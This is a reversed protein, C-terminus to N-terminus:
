RSVKKSEVVTGQGRVDQEGKTKKLGVLRGSDFTFLFQRGVVKPLSVAIYRGKVQYKGEHSTTAVVRCDTSNVFELQKWDIKDDWTVQWVHARIKAIVETDFRSHLAAQQLRNEVTKRQLGKLKELIGEYHNAAHSVLCDKRYGKHSQSEEWWLDAVRKIDETRESDKLEESAATKLRGETGKALYSVGTEFDGKDLCFFEGVALFDSASASGSDVKRIQEVVEPYLSGLRKSDAAVMEVQMMPLRSGLKKAIMKLYISTKEAESYQHSDMLNEAEKIGLSLLESAGDRTLSRSKLMSRVLDRNNKVRDLEFSDNLRLNTKWAVDVKALKTAVEICESLVVYHLAIDDPKKVRSQELLTDLLAELQEPNNSALQKGFIEKLKKSAARQESKDPVTFQTQATAQSNSVILTALVLTLFIRLAVNMRM